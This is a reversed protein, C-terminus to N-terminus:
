CDTGYVPVDCYESAAPEPYVAEHRHKVMVPLLAFFAVITLVGIAGAILDLKQQRNM